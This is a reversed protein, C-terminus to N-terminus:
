SKDCLDQGTFRPRGEHQGRTRPDTQTQRQNDLWAHLHQAAAALEAPAGAGLAEIRGALDDARRRIAHLPDQATGAPRAEPSPAPLNPALSGVSARALLDLAEGDYQVAQDRLLPQLAIRREERDVADQEAQETAQVTQVYHELRGIREAIAGRAADLAQSPVSPLGSVDLGAAQEELASVKATLEACSWLLQTLAWVEDRVTTRALEDSVATAALRDLSDQFPQLQAPLVPKNVIRYGGRHRAAARYGDQYCLWRYSDGQERRKPPRGAWLPRDPVPGEPPPLLEPPVAAILAADEDPVLPDILVHLVHGAETAAM